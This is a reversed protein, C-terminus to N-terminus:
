AYHRLLFTALGWFLLLFGPIAFVRLEATKREARTLRFRYTATFFLLGLFSLLALVGSAEYAYHLIQHIM